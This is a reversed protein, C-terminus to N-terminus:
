VPVGARYRSDCPALGSLCKEQPASSMQSARLLVGSTYLVVVGVVVVPAGFAFLMYMIKEAAAARLCAFASRLLRESALEFINFIKMLNAMCPLLLLAAAAHCCTSYKSIAPRFANACQCQVLCPNKACLLIGYVVVVHMLSLINFREMTTTTTQPSTHKPSRCMHICYLLM